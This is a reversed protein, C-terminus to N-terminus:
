MVFCTETQVCCFKQSKMHVVYARLLSAGKECDDLIYKKVTFFTIM